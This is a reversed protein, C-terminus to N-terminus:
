APPLIFRKSQNLDITSRGIKFRGTIGVGLCDLNACTRPHLIGGTARGISKRPVGLPFKEKLIKELEQLAQENM